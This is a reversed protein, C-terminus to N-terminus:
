TQVKEELWKIIWVKLAKLTPISDFFYCLMTKLGSLKHMKWRFEIEETIIWQAGNAIFIWTLSILCKLCKKGLTNIASQIVEIKNRFNSM